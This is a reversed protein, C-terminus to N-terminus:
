VIRKNTKLRKIHKNMTTRSIRFEDMIRKQLIHGARWENYLEVFKEDDVVIENRGFRKGAAKAAAIGERQREWIRDKELQNLLSFMSLIVKGKESATDLDEKLSKFEVHLDQLQEILKLLDLVNWSFRSFENVIVADGERVFEMMLMLQPRNTDKTSLEDFYIKEAGNNRLEELFRDTELKDATARLYGVIM